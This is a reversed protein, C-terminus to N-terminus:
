WGAANSPLKGPNTSQGTMGSTGGHASTARAVLHTNCSKPCSYGTHSTVPLFLSVPTEGCPSHLLIGIGLGVSSGPQGPCPKPLTQGRLLQPWGQRWDEKEKRREKQSPRQTGITHTGVLFAFYVM